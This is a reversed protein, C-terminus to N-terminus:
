KSVPIEFGQKAEDVVMRAPLNAAAEEGTDEASPVQQYYVIVHATYVGEPESERLHLNLEMKRTMTEIIDVEAVISGSQNRIFIEANPRKQFPDIELYIRVRRGDPWPLPKFERIRVQDPPLPVENPDQFFIDMLSYNEQM